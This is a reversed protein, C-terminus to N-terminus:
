ATELTKKLDAMFRDADAGDVVRHDFSCSFYACTRIAITDEGDAGTIVKPRKEIAGLGLIATTGVPIIPTGMLSGFVGPNTITFTADQVDVPSLKKSRARAALDNAARTLGTLNLGDADKIVPVILGVPDLAVAIGINYRKRLIVDTGSVTANMVPHRRLNEVVAKMIFPLFTLKQGTEAEFAAKMQARQRAVRTLDIEFFSTVHAAVQKAQRMHDATLRRIKSMPEVVDGPWPQFTPEAHGGMPAAPVAIAGPLGAPMAAPASPATAPRAGGSALHAELDKKTVRGAIGSGSLATIDVGADAAMRRVLPSSKTRLREELSGAAAPRAPPAPVAPVPSAAVPSPAAAGVPAPAPAAAAPSPSPASAIAAGKETELRAVVTNVPVTTGEIVIIEALVGAAPAPIEADVKDTSIEFIPEDRKVEDGIKKLWRSLTGEAISEGMQPM